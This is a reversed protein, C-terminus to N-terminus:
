PQTPAWLRNSINVALISNYTEVEHLLKMINYVWFLITVVIIDTYIILTPIYSTSM